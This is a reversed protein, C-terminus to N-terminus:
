DEAGCAACTSATVRRLIELTDSAVVAVDIELLSFECCRACWAGTRSDVAHGEITITKM